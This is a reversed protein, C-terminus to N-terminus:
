LVLASVGTVPDADVRLTDPVVPEPDAGLDLDECAVQTLLKFTGVTQRQM